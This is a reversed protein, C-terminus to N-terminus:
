PQTQEHILISIAPRGVRVSREHTETEKNAELRAFGKIESFIIVM